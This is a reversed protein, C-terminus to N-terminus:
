AALLRMHEHAPRGFLFGQGWRVGEDTLISREQTSEVGEAILEVGLDGAFRAFSRLLHVARPEVGLRSVIARDLKITTIPLDFLINPSSYGAGFDDLAISVGAEILPALNQRVRESEVVPAHEVLELRVRSGEVAYRDLVPLVRAALNPDLLERVTVNVAVWEDDPRRSLYQCAEDLMRTGLVSELGLKEITPLFQDPTRVASPHHWRALAEWGVVANEAIDVIPQFYGVIQRERLAHRVDAEITEASSVVGVRTSQSNAKRSRKDAYMAQDARHLLAELSEEEGSTWATGLSVGIRLIHQRWRYDELLRRRLKEATAELERASACGALVVVFEDGGIRAVTDTQRVGSRLRAAALRLLEDGAAHGYRDNVPKFDDLDLYIIGFAYDAHARARRTAGQVVAELHARNSTGTLEDHLSRHLMADEEIKRETVDDVSGSVRVLEGSADRYARGRISLWRPEGSETHVRVESEFTDTEGSAQRQMSALLKKRDEEDLAGLAVEMDVLRDNAPLELLARAACSIFFEGTRRDLDWIGGEGAGLAAEYREKERCLSRTRRQTALAARITRDIVVPSLCRRVLMTDAGAAVLRRELLDDPSETLVVMSTSTGLTRARELLELASGDALEDGVLLVDLGDNQLAELADRSGDLRRVRWPRRLREIFQRLIFYNARDAEAIGVTVDSDPRHEADM